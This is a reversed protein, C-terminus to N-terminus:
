TMAINQVLARQLEGKKSFEIILSDVGYENEVTCNFQGYDVELVNTIEIISKWGTPIDTELLTYRSLLISIDFHFIYIFSFNMLFIIYFQMYESICRELKHM